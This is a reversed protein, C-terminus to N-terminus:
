RPLARTAANTESRARADDGDLWADVAARMHRTAVTVDAGSTQARQIRDRAQLLYDPLVPGGPVPGHVPPATTLAAAPAAVPITTGIGAAGAAAQASAAYAAAAAPNGMLLRSLALRYAYAARQAAAPDVVSARGIAGYANSVATTAPGFPVPPAPLPIFVPQPPAPPQPAAQAPAAATMCSALVGALAATFWPV